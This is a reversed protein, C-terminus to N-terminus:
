IQIYTRTPSADSKNLLPISYLTCNFKERSTRAKNLLEQKLESLNVLTELPLIDRELFVRHVESNSGKKDLSFSDIGLINLRPFINIIKKAADMTLYPFRKEFDAKESDKLKGELLAMEDSFGTYLIVANVRDKDVYPIDEFDFPTITRERRQLLDTKTLDLLIVNNIYKNLAYDEGTKGKPIKHAPFDLHTGHHNRIRLEQYASNYRVSTIGAGSGCGCEDLIPDEREETTAQITRIEVEPDSPYKFMGAHIDYSLNIIKIM